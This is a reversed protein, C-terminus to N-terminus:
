RISRTAFPGAFMCIAVMVTVHIMMMGIRLSIHDLVVKLRHSVKALVAQFLKVMRGICVIRAIGITVQRQPAVLALLPFRKDANNVQKQCTQPSTEHECHHM